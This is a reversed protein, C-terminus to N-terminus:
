IGKTISILLLIFVIIILIYSAKSIVLKRKDKSHMTKEDYLGKEKLNIGYNNIIFDTLRVFDKDEITLM